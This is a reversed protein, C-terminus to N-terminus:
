CYEAYKAKQSFEDAGKCVQERLEQILGGKGEIMKPKKSFRLKNAVYMNLKTFSFSREFSFFKEYM